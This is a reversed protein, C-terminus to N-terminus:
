SICASYANEELVLRTNGRCEDRIDGEICVGLGREEGSGGELVLVNHWGSRLVVYVYVMDGM